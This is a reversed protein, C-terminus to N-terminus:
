GALRAITARQVAMARAIWRSREALAQTPGVM